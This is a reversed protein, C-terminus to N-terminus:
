RRRGFIRLLMLFINIFDLYLALAGWVGVNSLLHAQGTSLLGVTVQKIRQTQYITLGLFIALGAYTLLWDLGSSALFFNAVSGIIFAVLGIMLYKGWSSLNQKTTYGIFSMVAFLVATAMFAVTISSLTYALFIFSLTIGNWAAYLFFMGLAVPPSLKYVRISLYSVFILEGILIGFFLLPNGAIAMLFNLGWETGSVLWSVLATLALGAGMWTYVKQMVNTLATSVEAETPQYTQPISFSM